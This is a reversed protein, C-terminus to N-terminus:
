LEKIARELNRRAPAEYLTRFRTTNYITDRDLFGRLVTRRERRYTIMPVWKYEQRIAKEYRDYVEAARGLISLDIDIMLLQDDPMSAVPPGSAFHRTAMILDHVSNTLEDPADCGTLFETAWAASDAENTKSRWNYVADHFWFALAIPDAQEPPLRCEDLQALCDDIHALTHYHLEPKSYAAVLRDYTAASFDSLGLRQLLSAWHAQDTHAVM